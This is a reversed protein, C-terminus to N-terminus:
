MGNQAPTYQLLIKYIYTPFYKLYLYLKLESHTVTGKGLSVAGTLYKLIQRQARAVLTTIRKKF